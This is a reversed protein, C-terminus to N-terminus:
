ILNIGTGKRSNTFDMLSTGVTHKLLEYILDGTAPLNPERNSGMRNTTQRQEMTLLFTM